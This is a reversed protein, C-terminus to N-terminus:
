RTAAKCRSRSPGLTGTSPVRTIVVTKALNDKQNCVLNKLFVNIMGWSMVLFFKLRLYTKLIRITHSQLYCLCLAPSSWSNMVSGLGRCPCLAPSGTRVAPSGGGWKEQSETPAQARMRMDRSVVEGGGWWDDIFGAEQMELRPLHGDIEWLDPLNGRVIDM